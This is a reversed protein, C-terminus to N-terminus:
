KAEQRGDKKVNDGYAGMAADQGDVGSM